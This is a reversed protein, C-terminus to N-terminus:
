RGAAHRSPPEGELTLDLVLTTAATLLAAGITVDALLNLRTLQAEGQPTPNAQVRGRKDLAM